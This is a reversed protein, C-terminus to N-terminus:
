DNVSWDIPYIDYVVTGTNVVQKFYGSQVDGHMKTIKNALRKSLSPIHEKPTISLIYRALEEPNYKLVAMDDSLEIVENLAEDPDRPPYEWGYFRKYTM